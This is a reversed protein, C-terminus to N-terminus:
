VSGPAPDEPLTYPVFDTLFVVGTFFGADRDITSVNDLKCMQSSGIRRTVLIDDSDLDRPNQTRNVWITRGSRYVIATKDIITMSDNRRSSICSVPKGAVRGKLMAALKEEGTKKDKAAVGGGVSLALAAIAISTIIKRM